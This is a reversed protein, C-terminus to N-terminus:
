SMEQWSKVPIWEKRRLGRALVAFFAIWAVYWIACDCWSWPLTELSAGPCKAVAMSVVEMLWTSAAALNNLLAGVPRVIPSVITGAAGLAVSITALPIILVNAFIGGFVIRGFARASVPTSAIWAAFSIGLAGLAHMGCRHWMLIADRRKTDVLTEERAALKLLGDLPAAFQSSWRLWLLIALMVLFSLACGASFVNEPSHAYILIVAVGWAVLSDAQRGFLGSCIWLGAMLAARIASARAGSVMVYGALMPLVFMAVVPPSLGARSLLMNLVMAVLMVHLGSIAFVHITGATAFMARKEAGIGGRRGLLMAKNLAALEPNWGLGTGANRSLRDSLRSYATRVNFRGAPSMREMRGGDLVWLTRRAYRSPADKKLSLWGYCRWREGISPTLAGEGMKAVVKVPIGGLSSGFCVICGGTGENLRRQSVVSEVDLEYSPPLGGVPSAHSQREVVMRAAESHWALAFGALVAVPWRMSPIDWGIAVLTLNLALCGVWPWQDAMLPLAFGAVEGSVFAMALFTMTLGARNRAWFM